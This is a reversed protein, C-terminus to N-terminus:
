RTVENRLLELGNIAAGALAARATIVHVPIRGMLEKFRGKRTFSELFRPAKLADLLHLAVGGALYVGGTAFVKLALNGAESALISTLIEVTAQSRESARSPDTAAEVIAQTRDAAASSRHGLTASAKAAPVMLSAWTAAMALTARSMLGSASVPPASSSNTRCAFSSGGDFNTGTAPRM